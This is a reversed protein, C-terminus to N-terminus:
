PRPFRRRWGYHHPIDWKSEKEIGLLRAANGGLILAVEDATFQCNYKKAVEPLNKLWNLVPTRKIGPDRPGRMSGTGWMIRHAGIIAKARALMRVITEEDSRMNVFAKSSQVTSLRFGTLWWDFQIYVNINQSAVWLCKEFWDQFPWGAHTLVLKLDPFDCIVDGVYIPDFFRTRTYGGAHAQATVYVPVNYDLCREYLPYLREDCAYYGVGPVVKLGHLKYEKIARDFIELVGPRRADPGAFGYIRGPYKNQLEALQRHKEDITIGAESGWAYDYDLPLVIAADVGEEDMAAVSLSGDPDSFREEYKEYFAAPDRDYPPGKHYAWMMCMFWNQQWPFYRKGQRGTIIHFHSDIIM